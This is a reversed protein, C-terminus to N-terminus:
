LGTGSAATASASVMMRLMTKWQDSFSCGHCALQGMQEVDAVDDTRQHRDVTDDQGDGAEGGSKQPFPFLARAVVRHVQVEAGLRVPPDPEGQDPHRDHEEGPRPQTRHADLSRVVAVSRKAM